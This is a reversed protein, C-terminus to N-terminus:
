TEDEQNSVEIKPRFALLILVVGLMTPLMFSQSGLVLLCIIAMGLGIYLSPNKSNEKWREFLIVSFMATMVFELGTTDFPIIPGLLGGLTAGTVWYLHNLLTVFFM